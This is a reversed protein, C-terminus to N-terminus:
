FEKRHVRFRYGSGWVTEIYGTRLSGQGMKKRIKKIHVTVTAIDGFSDMGWVASFLEEKSYVHNPHSALFYLLDFEKTTLFKEEGEVYVRRSAQDMRFGPYSIDNRDETKKKTLRDYCALNAKVRAVLENPSFPKRIYDDAGVGLGRVIDIEGGRKSVFLVPINRKKRIQKCIEFGDIDPLDVATLVLDVGPMMAHNIGERGSVKASVTFSNMKLYDRELEIMEMDDDIILIHSM